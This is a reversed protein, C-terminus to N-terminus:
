SKGRQITNGNEDGKMPRITEYYENLRNQTAEKIRSKIGDTTKDWNDLDPKHMFPLIRGHGLADQTSHLSYALLKIDHRRIARRAMFRGALGAGLLNFHCWPKTWRLRDFHLNQRGLEDAEERSFGAAIAWKATLDRHVFPGM